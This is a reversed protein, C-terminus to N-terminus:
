HGGEVLKKVGKLRLEPVGRAPLPARHIETSQQSVRQALTDPWQRILPLEPQVGLHFGRM